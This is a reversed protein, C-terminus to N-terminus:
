EILTITPNNIVIDNANNNWIPFGYYGTTPVTFVVGKVGNQQTFSKIRTVQTDGIDSIGNPAYDLYINGDSNTIAEYAFAYLKGAQLEIPCALWMSYNSTNRKFTVINNSVSIYNNADIPSPKVLSVSYTIKVNDSLSITNSGGGGLSRLFDYYAM